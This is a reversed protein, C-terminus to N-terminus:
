EESKGNLAQCARGVITKGVHLAESCERVSRGEGRMTALTELQMPSLRPKRGWGRGEAECRDRASAIRENIALREMQAAWAMVCLILEAAPGSPDFGDACSCLAVGAGQFEKVVDLTDRIGSRTLRDLRYVYLRAVRGARADARLRSLEPRDLNKGSLKETYFEGITEGRAAAAREVALRQMAHDQGRSSVRLYAVVRGPM